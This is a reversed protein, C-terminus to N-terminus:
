VLPALAPAGLRKNSRDFGGVRKLTGPRRGHAAVFKSRWLKGCKAVRGPIAHNSNSAMTFAALQEVLREPRMYQGGVTPCEEVGIANCSSIRRTYVRRRLREAWPARIPAGAHYCLNIDRSKGETSHRYSARCPLGCPPVSSIRLEMKSASATKAASGALATLRTVIDCSSCASVPALLACLDSVSVTCRMLLM